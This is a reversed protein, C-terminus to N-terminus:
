RQRRPQWCFGHRAAIFAHRLGISGSFIEAPAHGRDVKPAFAKIKVQAQTRAAGISTTEATYAHQRRAWTNPPTLVRSVFARNRYKQIRRAETYFAYACALRHSPSRSTPCASVSIKRASM